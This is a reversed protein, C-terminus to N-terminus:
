ALKKALTCWHGVRESLRDLDASEIGLGHSIDYALTIEDGALEDYSGDRGCLARAVHVIRVAEQEKASPNRYETMTRSISKPFALQSAASEAVDLPTAEFVREFVDYATVDVSESHRFVSTVLKPVRDAVIMLGLDHLLGAAFSRDSHDPDVEEALSEAVYAVAVSRQWIQVLLPASEEDVLANSVSQMLVLQRVRRVGVRAAALEITDVPVARAYFASNALSIVRATLAPDRSLPELLEHLEPPHDLSALASRLDGLARPSSRPLPPSALLAH